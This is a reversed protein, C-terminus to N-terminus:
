YALLGRVIKIIENSDIKADKLLESMSGSHSLHNVALKKVKVNSDSLASLVFDGFGGHEFHDEVTLIINQKTETASKLLTAKDVPKISYCDIIRIFINEKALEEYAKLAEHVTIGTAAVVIEDNDSSRLIKSGGIEFTENNDYLVKTKARQTRMYSIGESNAMSGLLKATSVVDSPQLVISDTITGFLSIDELGMQSSGDEGISVGVHSGVFKINAHSLAAMRIQDAARTFFAAFTSVFPSLGLRSLGVAVSVMNQEAIFCEIFRDPHVRMFDEAYTSNKVDGDLLYIAKDGVGLQALTSGYVERTGVMDGKKYQTIVDPSIDSFGVGQANSETIHVPPKKLSFGLSDDVEGLELLAKKLEESKLAKGHWNDADQMFSVGKGKFTKMIIAFPKHGLGARDFAEKIEAFNHGDIVITEFGFARFRQEYEYVQHGFMTEQSQALRNIDAIAVLNNLKYHSAFNAAEWNQGEALEGDGLLVYVKPIQYKTNPIQSERQIALAMGAGVSLGQGLSGTAADTFPFSPTPHGELRSGFKRLTSLEDRSIGGSMSYLSYFLPAAHGKSFILRDNTINLPNKLDYRFYSEFLVTMIDAASLCSSPHGSGATTTSTLCLKRILRAKQEWNDFNTM